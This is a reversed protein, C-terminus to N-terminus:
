IKMMKRFSEVTMDTITKLTELVGDGKSAVAEVSKAQHKNLADNLQKVSLAGGKFDRHNWQFIHPTKELLINNALLAENVDILCKENEEMRPYRSDAVFVIGDVDKLLITLSELGYYHGPLTYASFRISFGAAERQVNNDKFDMRIGPDQYYGVKIHEMTSPFESQKNDNIHILNSSRGSMPPGVYVIKLSAERKGFNIQVM